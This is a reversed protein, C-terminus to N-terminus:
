FTPGQQLSNLVILTRKRAQKPCIKVGDRPPSWQQLRPLIAWSSAIDCIHALEYEHYRVSFDLWM